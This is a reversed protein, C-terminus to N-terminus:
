EPVGDLAIDCGAKIRALRGKLPVLEWTIVKGLLVSQKIAAGSFGTLRDFWRITRSGVMKSLEPNSRVTYTFRYKFTTEPGEEEALLVGESIEIVSLNREETSSREVHPYFAPGTDTPTCQNLTLTTMSCRGASCWLRIHHVSDSLKGEQLQRYAVRLKGNPPEGAFSVGGFILCSVGASLCVFALQRWPSIGLM